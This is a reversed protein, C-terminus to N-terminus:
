TGGAFRFDSCLLLNHACLSHCFPKAGMLAGLLCELPHARVLLRLLIVGGRIEECLDTVTIGHPELHSNWWLTFTRLQAKDQEDHLHNRASSIGKELLGPPEPEFPM